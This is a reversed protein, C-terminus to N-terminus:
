QRKAMDWESWAYFTNRRELPTLTRPINEDMDKKITPVAVIGQDCWMAEYQYITSEGSLQLFVNTLCQWMLISILNSRFCSGPAITEQRWRLWGIRSKTEESLSGDHYWTAGRGQQPRRGSSLCIFFLKSKTVRPGEGIRVWIRKSVATLIYM